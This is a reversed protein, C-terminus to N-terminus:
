EVNLRRRIRDLTDQTPMSRRAGGQVSVGGIQKSKYLTWADPTLIMGVLWDGAEIRQETGNPAKVVWTPGRYIYNEVVEACKEFGKQHWMGVRAGKRLYRWCADEVVRDSAVDVFGDAAVAVDPKYAPYAVTLLFRREDDAKLVIGRHAKEM